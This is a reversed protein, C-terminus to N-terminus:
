PNVIVLSVVPRGTLWTVAAVVDFRQLEGACRDMVERLTTGDGIWSTRASADPDALQPDVLVLGVLRVQDHALPALQAMRHELWAAIPHQTLVHTM